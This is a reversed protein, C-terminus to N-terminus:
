EMYYSLLDMISPSANAERVLHCLNKHHWRNSLNYFLTVDSLYPLLIRKTLHGARPPPNQLLLVTYCTTKAGLASAPEVATSLGTKPPLFQFHCKLSDFSPGVNLWCSIANQPGLGLHCLSRSKVTIFSYTVQLM